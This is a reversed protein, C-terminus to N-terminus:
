GVPNPAVPAPPAPVPPRVQPVAVSGGGRFARWAALLVAGFGFFTALMVLPPLLALVALVVVGVLAALYPRERHVEPTMRGVIVDGIWIAAVLYGLFAALPWVFLLLGIGAPAGVITAILPIAILIPLIAGLLGVGATLLPEHTILGGAARVQRSGIAAALLAALLAALGVGLTWLLYLPALLVGLGEFDAALDQVNALAAGQKLVASDVTWVHDIVQAGDAVTVPSRVAFVTEAVAGATLTASGDVVVLTTVDGDITANGRVVVVADAHEGAPLSVDGQVSILVRGTQPLTRDAAFVAPTFAILGIALLAGVLAIRRM